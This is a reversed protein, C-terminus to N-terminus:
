NLSEAAHRVAVRPLGVISRATAPAVRGSDFWHAFSAALLIAEPFPPVPVLAARGYRDTEVMWYELPAAINTM